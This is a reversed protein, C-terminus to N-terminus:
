KIIIKNQNEVVIEYKVNGTAKVELKIKDKCRKWFVNIEGDPLKHSAKCWDLKEVFCPSIKVFRPNQVKIGGIEGIFWGIVDGMLHHNKSEFFYQDYEYFQELFTTEGKSIWYGYSPFDEKTIMNYALDAKGFQSLVHFLVRTGLFGCTFNNKDNAIIDTLVEFAKPKENEEFVNYYIAMAQSTQCKKKVEYTDFDIFEKRISALMESGLNQAYEKYDVLNVADFMETGKRCMDLIMVSDTFGLDSDYDEAIKSVPLWDGLGVAVIGREDRKKSIYELYKIMAPANEKIIETEGRFKYSFYPLNFIVSDWAPGNGWHYGWSDTPVIGPLQGQTTQAARINNLWERWSNEAGITMIMHEASASADGTWGNKERHPCDMPYYFFNSIDSRRGAEYIANAMQDSCEFSGRNELSSSMVLFTLLGKTAQEETIGSIYIYRFGHFTFMPEFVEETDGKLYYIDRQCFGDPYFNINNYNVKGYTIQEACQIDIKQGRQGKIKLRYIGSNNEGFDYIYGGTHAPPNEFPTISNVFSDIQYSPKYPEIEGKKINVPKIEKYVKIPEAECIKAYGKPKSVMIPKHWEDDIYEADLWNDELRADYFVGSRLDNFLVPGKKCVFDDAEFSILENKCKIEINLALMPAANTSNDKFNWVSTKGVLHGDGLMIGIVNKGNKLYSLIDYKDYYIIHNTNSIYPAIHGKTIKIGNVFLDYFGLGCILIEGNTATSKLDFSKRFLPAPVNKEYTSYNLDESVFIDSFNM